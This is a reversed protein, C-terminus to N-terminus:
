DFNSICICHTIIFNTIQAAHLSLHICLKSYLEVAYTYTNMLCGLIWMFSLKHKGFGGRVWWKLRSSKSCLMEWLTINNWCKIRNCMVKGVVHLLRLTCFLLRALSVNHMFYVYMIYSISKLIDRRMKWKKRWFALVCISLSCSHRHMGKSQYYSPQNDIYFATM